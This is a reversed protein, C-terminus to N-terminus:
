PIVLKLEPFYTRYYGADRTLLQDCQRLAHAGILFDTIVHQRWAITAGCSRCVITATAGCQPCQIANGRRALYLKWARAAVLLANPSTREGVVGLEALFSEVAPANDFSVATEAYVADCIIVQGLRLAERIAAESADAWAPNDMLVDLLINTDVATKV